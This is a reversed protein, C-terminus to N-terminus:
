PEYDYKANLMRAVLCKKWGGRCFRDKYDRKQNRGSFGLHLGCSDEVGECRLTQPVEDRYYPCQVLPDETYKCM